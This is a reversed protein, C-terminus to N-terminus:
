AAKLAPRAAPQPLRPQQPRWAGPGAAAQHRPQPELAAVPAAPMDALRFVGIATVQAQAQQRLGEAAHAIEEVLAANRQTGQDMHQVAAGIQAMGASQEASASSIEQMLPAARRIADVADAITRGVSDVQAAGETARAVSTDILLRIEKASDAARQALSRVETAVVAFGRGQTGARAAEVAANLALINTQFAIGDILGIIDAMRASQTQIEGMTRVVRAMTEGGQTAADSARLVIQQAERANAASHEMTAGLQELAAAQQELASAQETTRQALDQNGAAIQVAANAVSESGGRIGHVVTALQTRMAALAQLVQAAEDRGHVEIPRALDGGAVRQAAQVAQGLSAGIGRVLAVGFLLAFLLGSAIAGIAFARLAGYRTQAAAHAQGAATHQFEVLAAIDEGVPQYLPRVAELVLTRLRELDQARLAAVSPVLGEQVFRQRHQAFREALAREQADMTSRQYATWIGTIAAINAEVEDASARMQEPVPTVLAVALALRNRLLLGQIQGIQQTATLREEYLVRLAANAQATGWLGMLGMVLVLLSLAGAMLAVRTSIKFRNM